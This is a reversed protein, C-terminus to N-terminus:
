ALPLRLLFTSGQGPGDSHAELDGGMARAWQRARALTSRGQEEGATSRSSLLAYRVFVQELDSADLGAGPDSIRLCAQGEEPELVVNITSGAESFKSANSLLAAMIQETHHPEAMASLHDPLTTSVHQQKREFRHGLQEVAQRVLPVLDVPATALPGTGREVGLDDLLDEVCRMAKFFQQEAFGSLDARDMDGNPGALMRLMQQMGALRNRLDHAFHHLREAQAANVKPTRDERGNSM